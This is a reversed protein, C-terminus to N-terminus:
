ARKCIIQSNQHALYCLWIKRMCGIMDHDIFSLSFSSVNTVNVAKNTFILDISTFSEETITEAMKFLGLNNFARKVYINTVNSLYNINVDGMIILEKDLGNVTESQEKILQDPDNSFFMLSERPRYYCGVLIAKTKFVFIEIWISLIHSNQLDDRLKYNLGNKSFSVLGVVLTMKETTLWIYGPVKYFEDNDTPGNIHTESFSIIDIKSLTDSVFTLM